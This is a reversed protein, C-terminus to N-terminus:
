APSFSSALVFLGHRGSRSRGDALSRDVRVTLSLDLFVKKLIDVTARANAESHFRVAEEPHQAEWLEGGSWYFRKRSKAANM